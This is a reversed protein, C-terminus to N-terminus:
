GNLARLLAETKAEHNMARFGDTQVQFRARDGDSRDRVAYYPETAAPETTSPVANAREAIREAHGSLMATVGPSTLLERFAADNFDVWAM